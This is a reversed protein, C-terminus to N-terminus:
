ALLLKLHGLHHKGHWAYLACLYAIPRTYKYQPHTFERLYDEDTMYKFLESLHAHIGSIMTLSSEIPMKYDAQEAWLAEVYPKVIPSDETLALKVRILANMHSDAVHHIVQRGTWGDPRYPTDLQKESLSNATSIFEDPLASIENVWVSIAEQTYTEPLVFNGIPYKLHGM